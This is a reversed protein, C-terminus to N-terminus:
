KFAWFDFWGGQGSDNSICVFNIKVKQLNTSVKQNDYDWEIQDMPYDAGPGMFIGFTFYLYNGPNGYYCETSILGHKSSTDREFLSGDEVVNALTIRGLRFQTYPIEFKPNKKIEPIVLLVSDVSMSDKSRYQFLANAFKYSWQGPEQSFPAGLLENAHAVSSQSVIHTLINEPAKKLKFSKYRRKKLAKIIVWAVVSAAVGTIITILIDM